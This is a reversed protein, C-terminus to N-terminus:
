NATVQGLTVGADTNEDYAFVYEDGEIPPEFVPPENVDQENLTVTIEVDNVGDSAIVTIDHSNALTEYDNTFAEAGAATLSINGQADIQFLDVGEIQVNTGISYTVDGLEPDNATVQGLTVGADTNEDYAFVYEDGEIPPEFVPPENVDLENLVVNIDVSQAVGEGDVETVTVTVVILHENGLTEFDNTYAAVGEATLTIEGTVPDIAYLPNDDGDVLNSSISYALVQNDPDVANVQGIVDTTGIGEEYSFSYQDEDNPEFQPLDNTGNITVTVDQLTGDSASVSFVDTLFEGVNLENFASDAIFTWNGEADITFSGYDGETDVQEIFTPDETDTVTLTGTIVLPEDTEDEAVNADGGVLALTIVEVLALSQTESLGQDELGSTDFSTSAIVEAGTREIDGTGTPSSGNQGGAATAFDDNQTPDVGQEIQGIIQAIEDDLELGLNPLGDNVLEAQINVAGPNEDDITVVVEGPAPQEGAALERLQGAADIVVTAGAWIISSINGASM